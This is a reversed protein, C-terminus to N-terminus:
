VGSLRDLLTGSPNARRLARYTPLLSLLPLVPPSFPLSLHPNGLRRSSSKFQRRLQNGKRFGHESKIASKAIADSEDNGCLVFAGIHTYVRM